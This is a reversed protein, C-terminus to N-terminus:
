NVEGEAWKFGKSGVLAILDNFLQDKKNREVIREPLRPKCLQRQSSMIEFANKVLDTGTQNVSENIPVVWFKVTEFHRVSMWSM